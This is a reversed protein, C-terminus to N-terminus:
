PRAKVKWGCWGNSFCNNAIDSVSHRLTVLATLSRKEKNDEASSLSREVEGGRERERKALHHHTTGTARTIASLCGM